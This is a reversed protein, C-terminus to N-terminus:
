SRTKSKEGELLPVNARTSPVETWHRHQLREKRRQCCIGHFKHSAVPPVSSVIHEDFIAAQFVCQGFANSAPCVILTALRLLHRRRQKPDQGDFVVAVPSPTRPSHRCPHHEASRWSSVLPCDTFFNPFSSRVDVAVIANQPAACAASRGAYEAAVKGAYM